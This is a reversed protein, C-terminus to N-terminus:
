KNQEDGPLPDTPLPPSLLPPLVAGCSIVALFVKDHLRSSCGMIDLM